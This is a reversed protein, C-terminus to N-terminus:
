GVLHCLELFPVRWAAGRVAWHGARATEIGRPTSRGVCVYVGRTCRVRPALRPPRADSVRDLGARLGGYGALSRREPPFVPGSWLHRCCPLLSAWDSRGSLPRRCEADARRCLRRGKLSVHTVLEPPWVTADPRSDQMRHSHSALATVTQRLAAIARGYDGRHYYIVGLQTNAEIQLATDELAVALTCARQGARLARAYDGLIRYGDAMESSVHALRRQDGWREALAEAERLSALVGEWDGLRWLAFDLAFRLDIAQEWMTRSVSLHQLAGLAQAFATVADPYASRALSKDGAWRCHEVAKDWVEGLLAHYALREIQDAIRDAELAEVIRAHLERRRELLLSNYAVEQTLAHKFTYTPEPFRHTEYLFEASRLHALGQQLAVAPLEAIAQLLPMPVDMDIVAATQLLRKTEPALRDIRAALVAQVTPPLQLDPVSSQLRPSQETPMGQGVDQEVLTQALEELFFPNGQAKALLAEALPPLVTEQQLVAQVVQVSDQVSLPPVTLQTAYSKGLWAPRYGPRYTGLILISAGALGEVLSAFFEESTPDSWHLDEVALILPHQRSSKLWLQRLTALTHAKLAEPSGGAVQVTAAEVGLLHLLYPAETDPELGVAQLATAHALTCGFLTVLKREGGPV